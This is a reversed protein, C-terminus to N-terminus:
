RADKRSPQSLGKWLSERTQKEYPITYQSKKKYKEWPKEQSDMANLGVGAGIGHLINPDKPDFTGRNGTASKIQTPNFVAYIDSKGGIANPSDSFNKFIVGDNGNKM